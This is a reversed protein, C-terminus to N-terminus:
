SQLLEDYHGDLVRLMGEFTFSAPLEVPQIGLGYARELAQAVAEASADLPKACVRETFDLDDAWGGHRVAVPLGASLAELVACPLGEWRSALLFVDAAAYAARPSPTFGPLWVADSLGLASVRAEMEPRLPGDGLYLLKATPRIGRWAALVDLHFLPDKQPKLNAVTVILPTSDDIRLQARAAERERTLLPPSPDVADRVLARRGGPALRLSSGRRWDARSVHLLLHTTRAAIREAAELFPTARPGLAATGFGHVSHVVSARPVAAGALRGLVGAKSSHTHVVLQPGFRAQIALLTTRLAVLATMDRWPRLPNDLERVRVLRPGLRAAAEEDLAADRGTVLFQPRDPRHLRAAAELAVRQAGGRELATIIQVVASM